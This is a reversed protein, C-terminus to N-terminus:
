HGGMILRCHDPLAAYAQRVTPVRLRPKRVCVTVLDDRIARRHEIRRYLGRLLFFAIAAVIGVASLGIATQTDTHDLTAVAYLGVAVLAMFGTLPKVFRGRRPPAHGAMANWARRKVLWAERHEYARMVPGGLIFAAVAMPWTDPQVLWMYGSGLFFGITPYVVLPHGLMRTKASPTRM